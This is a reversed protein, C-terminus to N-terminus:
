SEALLDNARSKLAEFAKDALQGGGSPQQATAKEPAAVIPAGDSLYGKTKDVEKV